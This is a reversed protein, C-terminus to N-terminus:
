AQRSRYELQRQCTERLWGVAVGDLLSGPPHADLKRLTNRYERTAKDSQRAQRYAEALHFSVLASEPSLYRARELQQIASQWQGQRGYLIGLLLYAEENLTDIELARQIEAAALDLDGRDAHARAILTLAHPAHPAQPPIGRLSELAEDARGAALLERGRQLVAEDSVGRQTNRDAHDHFPRVADRTVRSPATRDCRGIRAESRPQKLQATSPRAAPLRPEVAPQTESISAGKYYVYAGNVERSHFRDFVNWLTESFGLCLLGGIPLAEYFRAILQQCTKLQFYITVNQCFIVDMGQADQPFPELLNLTEFRVLSRLADGVVYGDQYPQFYRALLDPTLNNLTRGRYFGAGAKELAPQSLDTAWIEIPQAPLRGFTELATIALSYAEEGTACGASWLRIPAGSPKRRRIEPLLVDRLARMHPGNRFFMTEHNLVLEALRRLEARGAPAQIRREYTALDDGTARLRRALGNELVRQRSTDLHVGSYAALLDRLRSFQEPMLQMASAGDPAAVLPDQSTPPQHHHTM